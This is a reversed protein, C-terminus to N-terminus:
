EKDVLVFAQHCRDCLVEAKALISRPLRIYNPPRCSCGAVVNPDQSSARTMLGDVVLVAQILTSNQHVALALPELISQWQHIAEPALMWRTRPSCAERLSILGFARAPMKYYPSFRGFCEIVETLMNVIVMEAAREPLSFDVGDFLVQMEPLTASVDYSACITQWAHELCRHLLEVPDVAQHIGNTSYM